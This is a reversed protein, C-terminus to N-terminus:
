REDFAVPLIVTMQDPLDRPIAPLPQARRVTETAASDLAAYGSSTRVWIETITGDRRMSFLVYVIGRLGAAATTPAQRYRAIHGLLAKQFASAAASPLPRSRGSAAPKGEAPISPTTAPVGVAPMPRAVAAPVDAPALTSLQRPSQPAAEAPPALPEARPPGGAPTPAPTATAAPERVLRVEVVAGDATARGGLPRLSSQLWYIGTALVAPAIAVLLWPWRGGLSPMAARKQTAPPDFLDTPQEPRAM